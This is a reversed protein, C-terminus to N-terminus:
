MGGMGARHAAQHLGPALGLEFVVVAIALVLAAVGLARGFAPGLGLDKRCSRGRCRGGHRHREDVRLGGFPGHQGLLLGFLVRRRLAGGAPRAECETPASSTCSGGSPTVPRPRKTTLPIRGLGSCPRWICCPRSPQFTAASFTAASALQFAGAAQYM